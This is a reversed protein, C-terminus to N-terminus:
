FLLHLLWKILLSPPLYLLYPFLLLSWGIWFLGIVVFHNVLSPKLTDTKQISSTFSGRRAADLYGKEDTQAYLAALLDDKKEWRLRLWADFDAKTATPIDEIPIRRIFIHAEPTAKGKWFTNPISFIEESSIGVHTGTTGPYFVTIDWIAKLSRLNQTCAHLGTSRPTLVHKPHVEDPNHKMHHAHSIEWTNECYTTRDYM